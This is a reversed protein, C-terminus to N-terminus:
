LNSYDRRSIFRTVCFGLNNIFFYTYKVNIFSLIIMLVFFVGFRLAHNLSHYFSGDSIDTSYMALISIAGLIMISIILYFDLSRVKQLFSIDGFTSYSRM